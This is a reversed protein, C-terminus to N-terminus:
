RIASKDHKGKGHTIRVRGEFIYFQERIREIKWNKRIEPYIPRSRTEDETESNSGEM